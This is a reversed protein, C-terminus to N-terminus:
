AKSTQPPAQPEPILRVVDRPPLMHVTGDPQTEMMSPEHVVHLTGLGPLYVSDHNVLIDHVIQTVEKALQRELDPIM